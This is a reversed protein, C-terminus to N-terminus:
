IAIMSCTCVCVGVQECEQSERGGREGESGKEKGREKFGRVNYMHICVQIHVSMCM